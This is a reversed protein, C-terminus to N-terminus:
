AVNRGMLKAAVFAVCALLVGLVLLLPGALLGVVIDMAPREPNQRLRGWAVLAGVFLWAVIFGNM